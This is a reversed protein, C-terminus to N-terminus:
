SDQCRFPQPITSSSICYDFNPSLITDTLLEMPNNIVFEMLNNYMRSKRIQIKQAM